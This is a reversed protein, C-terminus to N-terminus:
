GAAGDLVDQDLLAAAFQAGGDRLVEVLLRHQGRTFDAEVRRVLRPKQPPADGNEPTIRGLGAFFDHGRRRGPRLPSYSKPSPYSRYSKDAKQQGMLGIQGRPGIGRVFLNRTEASSRYIEGKGAGHLERKNM